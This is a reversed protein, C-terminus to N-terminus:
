SVKQTAGSNPQNGEFNFVSNFRKNLNTNQTNGDFSTPDLNAFASSGFIPAGNNGFGSSGFTPTATTTAAPTVASSSSSGFPSVVAAKSSGTNSISGFVTKPLAIPKEFPNSPKPTQVALSAFASNPQNTNSEARGFVFSITPKTSNTPTFSSNNGFSFVSSATTVATSQQTSNTSSSFLSTPGFTVTKTTAVSKNECLSTTSGFVPQQYNSRDEFNEVKGNNKSQKEHLNWIFDPSEEVANKSASSSM